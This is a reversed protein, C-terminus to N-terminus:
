VLLLGLHLQLDTRIDICVRHEQTVVTRVHYVLVDQLMIGATHIVTSVHCSISRTRVEATNVQSILGSELGVHVTSGHSQHGTNVKIFLICVARTIFVFFIGRIETREVAATIHTAHLHGALNGDVEVFGNNNIILHHATTVIGIDVFGIEIGLEQTTQNTRIITLRLSDDTVLQFEIESAQLHLRHAPLHLSIIIVGDFLVCVTINGIDCIGIAIM